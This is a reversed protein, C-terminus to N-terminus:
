IGQAALKKYQPKIHKTEKSNLSDLAMGRGTPKMVFNPASIKRQMVKGCKCIQPQEFAQLPLKIEGGLGCECCYEYIPM